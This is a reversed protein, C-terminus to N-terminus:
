ENLVGMLGLPIGSEFNKVQEISEQSLNEVTVTKDYWSM